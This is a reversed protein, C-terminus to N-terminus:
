NSAQLARAAELVQKGLEGAEAEFQSLVPESAEKWKAIEEPTPYYITMGNKAAEDFAAKEINAMEDRVAMDAKLAADSVIKQTDADLGQWFKENILVIFEIDANNTVTIHDM